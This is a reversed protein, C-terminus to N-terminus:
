GKKGKNKGFAKGLKDLFAQEDATLADDGHMKAFSIGWKLNMEALDEPDTILEDRIIQEPEDLIDVWEGTFEVHVWHDKFVDIFKDALAKKKFHFCVPAKTIPDNKITWIKYARM